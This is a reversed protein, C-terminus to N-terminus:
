QQRPITATKQLQEFNLRVNDAVRLYITDCGSAVGMTGHILQVNRVLETSSNLLRTVADETGRPSPGGSLHIAALALRYLNSAQSLFELGKDDSLNSISIAGQPNFTKMGEGPRSSSSSDRLTIFDEFTILRIDMIKLQHRMRQVISNFTNRIMEHSVLVRDLGLVGSHVQLSKGNSDAQWTIKQHGFEPIDSKAPRKINQLATFSSNVRSNLFLSSIREPEHISSPSISTLCHHLYVVRMAYLIGVCQHVVFQANRSNPGCGYAIYSM